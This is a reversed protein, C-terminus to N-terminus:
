LSAKQGLHLLLHQQGCRGRSLTRPSGCLPLEPIMMNTMRWVGLHFNEKFFVPDMAGSGLVELKIPKSHPM